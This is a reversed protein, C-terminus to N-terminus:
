FQQTLFCEDNRNKSDNCCNNSHMCECLYMHINGMGFIGNSKIIKKSNLWMNLRCWARTFIWYISVNTCISYSLTKHFLRTFKNEEYNQPNLWFQTKTWCLTVKRRTLWLKGWEIYLKNYYQIVFITNHM